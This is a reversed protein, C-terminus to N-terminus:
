HFVWGLHGALLLGLSCMQSVMLQLSSLTLRSRVILIGPKLDPVKDERCRSCEGNLHCHTM